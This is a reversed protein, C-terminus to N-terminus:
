LSEVHFIRLQMGPKIRATSLQNIKRILDGRTDYKKALLWIEDGRQVEHTIWRGRIAPFPKISEPINVKCVVKSGEPRCVIPLEHGQGPIEDKGPYDLRIVDPRTRPSIQTAQLIIRSEKSKIKKRLHIKMGVRLEAQKNKERNLKYLKDIEVGTQHAIDAWHENPKVVHYRAHLPDQVRIWQGAVLQEQQQLEPNYRRLEEVSIGTESSIQKLSSQIQIYKYEATFDEDWLMQMYRYAGPSKLVLDSPAPIEAGAWTPKIEPLLGNHVPFGSAQVDPVGPIFVSYAKGDDPIKDQLLWLNYKKLTDAHIRCEGSMEQLSKPGHMVKAQLWVKPAHAERIYQEFVIKHALAKLPYWHFDGKIQMKQAGFHKPDIYAMSGGGGAYYAVVAYLYNDFIRNNNYFYRAAALTSKYIHKREDIRDNVVLGVERATFDKFQWFGVANSSSVADGIFASEQIVLYKLDEPVGAQKLAAEVWPMYINCRQQLTHLYEEKHTLKIVTKLIEQRAEATLTLEIGCFEMREPVTYKVEAAIASSLLLLMVLTLINEKMYYLYSAKGFHAYCALRKDKM